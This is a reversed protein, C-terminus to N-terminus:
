KAGDEGHQIKTGSPLEDVGFTGQTTKTTSGVKVEAPAGEGCGVIGVVVLAFIWTKKM